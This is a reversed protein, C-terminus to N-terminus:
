PTYRLALLGRLEMVVEGSEAVARADWLTGEPREATCRGEVRLREGNRARRGLALRAIGAPLAQREDQEDRINFYLHAIQLLAELVYPSYQYHFTDLHAFDQGPEYITTGAIRGPGTGEFHHMVQYRGSLATNLAYRRLGEVRDVAPTDFEEPSTWTAGAQRAQEARGLLVKCVFAPPRSPQAANAEDGDAPTVAVQCLVGAPAQTRRAEIRLPLERDTACELMQRFEIDQVELADLHPWLARAAELAMEVFSIASVLPAELQKLPKHDALWLDRGASIIRTALLEERYADVRVVRDILPLDGPAFDVITGRLNGSRDPLQPLRLTKTPPLARTMLVDSYASPALFLEHCFIAAIARVDVYADALGHLALLERLETTDAMGAGEVPPLWFTRGRLTAHTTTWRRILAAMARNAACYNAQGVNGTVAAISSLGCLFRLGHSQAAQWLAQLGDIKTACVEAFDDPTQFPLFADRLIGAGHVIGDIRGHRSIVDEAFLRAAGAQSLDAVVYEAEAGSARLDALTSQIEIQQALRAVARAREEDSLEALTSEVHRRAVEEHSAAGRRPLRALDLSADLPTRGVLIFRPRFPALARAVHATIGRAGGSIVIVDGPAIDVQRNEGPPLPALQASAARLGDAGVTIAVDRTQPDFIAPLASELNAGAEVRVHRFVVASVELAASLFLGRLGESVALATESRLPEAELALCFARQEARLFVKLAAFCATLAPTALVAGGPAAPLDPITFILGGLAAAPELLREALEQLGSPSLAALSEIPLVVDRVRAGQRKLAAVLPAPLEAAHGYGVVAVDLGKFSPLAAPKPVALKQEGLVLRWLPAREARAEAGQGQSAASPPASFPTAIAEADPRSGDRAIVSAVRDALDRVTRVDLFDELRITIGFRKEVAFVIVPLRSSRISLDSRLDMDPEIEAREYGTAEMVIQIIPEIM